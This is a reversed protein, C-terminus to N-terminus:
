AKMILMRRKFAVAINKRVFNNVGRFTTRRKLEELPMSLLLKALCEDAFSNSVVNVGEFDLVVKENGLIMPLLMNRVKEGLVRTGLNEGITVFKFTAM